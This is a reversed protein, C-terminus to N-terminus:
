SSFFSGSIGKSRKASFDASLIMRPRSFDFFTGKELTRKPKPILYTPSVIALVRAFLKWDSSASIFAPKSSNISILSIPVRMAWLKVSNKEFVSFM